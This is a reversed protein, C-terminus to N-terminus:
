TNTDHEVSRKIKFIYRKVYTICNFSFSYFAFGFLAMILPGNICNLTYFYGGLDREQWSGYKGPLRELYIKLMSHEDLFIASSLKVSTYFKLIGLVFLIFVVSSIIIIFKSGAALIIDKFIWKRSGNNLFGYYTLLGIAAGIENLTFDNWDLYETYQRTLYFYQNIEDLVGMMTVCFFITGLMFKKKDKDFVRALLISLIAYQPFHIIEIPATILYRFALLVASALFVWYFVTTLRRTGKVFQYIIYFFFIASVAIGIQISYDRPIFKGWPTNVWDTLIDTVILHYFCTSLWYLIAFVFILINTIGILEIKGFRITAIM